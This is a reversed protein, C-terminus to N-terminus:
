GLFLKVSCPIVCTCMTKATGPGFVFSPEPGGLLMHYGFVSFFFESNIEVLFM